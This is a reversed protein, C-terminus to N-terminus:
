QMNDKLLKQIKKIDGGTCQDIYKDKLYLFFTPVSEINLDLSLKDNDDIDIKYIELKDNDLKNSIEEILPKIRQCPGCWSATFYFLSYNEKDKLFDINNDFIEKM